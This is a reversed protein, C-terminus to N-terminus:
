HFLDDFVAPSTFYNDRFIKLQLVTGHTATMPATAHQQQKGLYEYVSMDYTYGLSNCLKYIKIVFTKHKKPTYQQFAVRGKYLVILQEVALNETPNYLECFKNNL